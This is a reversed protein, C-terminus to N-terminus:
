PFDAINSLIWWFDWMLQVTVPFCDGRHFALEYSALTRCTIEIRNM